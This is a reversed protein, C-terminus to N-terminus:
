EEAADLVRWGFSLWRGETPAMYRNSELTVTRKGRNAPTEISMADLTTSPWCEDYRLMDLPFEGRGTVKFSVNM